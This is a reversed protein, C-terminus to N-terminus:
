WTPLDTQQMKELTGTPAEHNPTELLSGWDTRESMQKKVSDSVVDHGERIQWGGGLASYLSILNQPLSSQANILASQVSLQSEEADLVSSYDVEGTDYRVRMLKVNNLAANNASVMSALTKQAEVYNIIGDQVEKQAKLVTNQYNFIAEQFAADQARVQNTIQGYNFIPISLSPGIAYTHNSWQFINNTSSNGTNSASYGFSGVLTFAPYLQAKVAGIKESEAMADLEAQRVDPRQRLVDKPIGVAVTSPALPINLKSKTNPKLLPDVKDPTTGILVALADKQQQLSAKLTPLSSQTQNLTTTAQEVDSLSAQGTDYRTQTLHLGEKLLQISHETLAIQQQYARIAIYTSGINATLSVLASDYAALSSLFSADNARIARRYKGWFDPEWGASLSASDTELNSPAISAYQSSTGMRQRTYNASVSQQQPYLEGVSQALLARAQLVKVGTSQLSLNNQYGVEILNNLVPDNFSEWWKADQTPSTKVGDDARQSNIGAWKDTVQTEPQKYDPGVMTCSNLLILTLTTVTISKIRHM